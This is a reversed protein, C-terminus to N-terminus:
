MSDSDSSNGASSQMMCGDREFSPIRRMLELLEDQRGLERALELITPMLGPALDRSLIARGIQFAGEADGNERKLQIAVIALGVGLRNPPIGFILKAAEDKKGLKM